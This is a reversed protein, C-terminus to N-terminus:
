KSVKEAAPLVGQSQEFKVKGYLQGLGAYADPPVKVKDFVRFVIQQLLSGLVARKSPSAADSKCGRKTAGSYTTSKSAISSSSSYTSTARFRIQELNPACHKIWIWSRNTMMIITM